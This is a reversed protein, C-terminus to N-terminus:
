SIWELLCTSVDWGSLTRTATCLYGAASLDCNYRQVRVSVSGDGNDTPCSAWYLTAWEGTEADVAPSYCGVGYPATGIACASADKVAYHHAQLSTVLDDADSAGVECSEAPISGGGREGLAQVSVCVTGTGDWGRDLLVWGVAAARLETVEGPDALDGCGVVMALSLTAARSAGRRFGSSPWRSERM